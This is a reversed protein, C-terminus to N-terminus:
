GEFPVVYSPLYIPLPHEPNYLSPSVPRFGRSWPVTVGHVVSCVTLLVCFDITLWRCLPTTSSSMHPSPPPPCASLCCPPLVLPPPSARVGRSGMGWPPRVATAPLRGIVVPDCPIDVGWLTLSPRPLALLLPTAGAALLPRIDTAWPRNANPMVLAGAVHAGGCRSSSCLPADVAELPASAGLPM